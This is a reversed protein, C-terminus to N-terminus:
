PAGRTAALAFAAIGWLLPPTLILAFSTFLLQRYARLALPRPSPIDARASALDALLVALLFAAITTPWPSASTALPAVLVGVALALAAVGTPYRPRLASM